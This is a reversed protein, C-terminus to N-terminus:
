YKYGQITEQLQIAMEALHTSAAAVEEMSAMQEETSAAVSQVNDNSQESVQHIQDIRGVLEEIEKSILHVASTVALTQQQVNDISEDIAVFSYNATTVRERGTMVSKENIVIEKVIKETHATITQVMKEIDIAAHNSEDALKRVETAVVAFGKGHEGSRAAEISANIALLNTQEAIGRIVHVAEAILGTNTDLEKIGETLSTTNTSIINMQEMINEVSVQGDNTLQKTTAASHNVNEINHTIDNMKERVNGSLVNVEATMQNQRDIGHSIDQVSETVIETAYNVENSSATLQEATAAVQESSNGVGRMATSLQDTMSNFSNSLQEFEDKTKLNLKTLFNGNAFESMRQVVENINRAIRVGFFTSIGFSIFIALISLILMMMFKRQGTEKTLQINQGIEATVENAMTKGFSVLLRSGEGLIPLAAQEAAKPNTALLPFITQDIGDEWEALQELYTHLKENEVTYTKLQEIADHLEGRIEYHNEKMEEKEYLMYGRAAANARVAHFAMDNYLGVIKQEEEIKDLVRNNENLYFMGIGSIILLFLLIVGFGIQLKLKVNVKVM